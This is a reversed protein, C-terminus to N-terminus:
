AAEEAASACADRAARGVAVARVAGRVDHVRVADAGAFVAIACAADSATQREGIPDGTVDALFSKRSAGLMVPLGLRERFWGAQALVRFSDEARKAFGIGPDVVLQASSVGARLAREISGELERAVEALVDGYDALDRMTEPTGRMHGLVLTAGASAAVDALEPDFALGSVDNIIRAGARLAADAVAAKRTDISVLAGPRECLSAVVPATRAVELAVPVERAGPRTSEGGVDLVHAGDALLEDAIRTAADVDVAESPPHHFRGGDSFSDPTLNMVGVITVRDQPFLGVM